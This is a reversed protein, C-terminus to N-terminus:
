PGPKGSILNQIFLGTSESQYNGKQDSNPDFFSVFDETPPKHKFKRSGFNFGITGSCGSFAPFFRSASDQFLNDFIIGSPKDLSGNVSVYFKGNQLDCGLGIIDGDKWVGSFRSSVGHHWKTNQLGDVGWSNKDCGITSSSEWNDNVLGCTLFRGAVIIQIECYCKAGKPCYFCSHVTGKMNFIAKHSLHDLMVSEPSSLAQMQPLCHLPTMGFEDKWDFDPKEFSISSFCHSEKLKETDTCSAAVFHLITRKMNDKVNVDANNDILKKVVLWNEGLVAAHLATMGQDNRKNLDVFTQLFCQHDQDSSYWSALKEIVRLFNVRSKLRDAPNQVELMERLKLVKDRDDTKFVLTSFDLEEM